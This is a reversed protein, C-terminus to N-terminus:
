PLLTEMASPSAVGELVSWVSKPDVSIDEPVMTRVNVISFVPDAVRLKVSAEGYTVIPPAGAASKETVGIGELEM